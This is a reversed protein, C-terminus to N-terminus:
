IAAVDAVVVIGAGFIEVAMYSLVVSTFQRASLWATFIVAMPSATAFCLAKAVFGFECPMNVRMSTMFRVLASMGTTSFTEDRFLLQLVVLSRVGLCLLM